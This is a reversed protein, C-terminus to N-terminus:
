TSVFCAGSTRFKWRIRFNWALAQADFGCVPYLPLLRACRSPSGALIQAARRMVEAREAPLAAAWASQAAAATAYAATVDDASALPIRTLVEGSWPDTDTLERGASGPRWQGGIPMRDFGGYPAPKTNM